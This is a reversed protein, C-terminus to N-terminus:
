LVGRVKALGHVHVLASVVREGGPDQSPDIPVCLTTGERRALVNSVVLARMLWVAARVSPCAVGLWAVRDGESRRLGLSSQIRSAMSAAAARCADEADPDDPTSATALPASAAMTEFLDGIARHQAPSMHGDWYHYTKAIVTVVNKIEKDIRFAPGAPLELYRDKRRAAVNEMVIARELWDATTETPCPVSIWGPRASPEAELDTVMWIGRCIEDVVEEYREPEAEIVAPPAPTLLTGKHPPGGAMALDCFTAWMQNWAVRGYPDYKLGASGMSVPQVDDYCDQYEEPLMARLRADLDALAIENDGNVAV